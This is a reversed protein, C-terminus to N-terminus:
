SMLSTIQSLQVLTKPKIQWNQGYEKLKHPQALKQTHVAGPDTRVWIMQDDYVADVQSVTRVVDTQSNSAVLNFLVTRMMM